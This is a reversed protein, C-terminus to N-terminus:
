STLIYLIYLPHENEAHEDGTNFANMELTLHM